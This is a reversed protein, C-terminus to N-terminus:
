FRYGITFVLSGNMNSRSVPSDEADGILYKFKGGMHVFWHPSLMQIVNLGVSVDKFGARTQFRGYRSRTAQLESVGYFTDMYRNDAWTLEVSPTMRLIEKLTFTRSLSVDALLGDNEQGLYQVLSAGLTFQPFDYSAFARAGAAVGIDGMGRLDDNAQSGLFTNGKEDRGSSVTLGLGAKLKGKNLLNVSLGDPGLIIFDKWNVYAFPIPVLGYDASGEYVPVVGVGAALMVEWDSQKEEDADQEEAARAVDGFPMALSMLIALCYELPKVMSM